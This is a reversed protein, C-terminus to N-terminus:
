IQYKNKQFFNRELLEQYHMHNCMTKYNTTELGNYIFMILIGRVKQKSHSNQCCNVCFFCLDWKKTGVSIILKQEQIRVDEVLMILELIIKAEDRLFVKEFELTEYFWYKEILIYIYVTSVYNM